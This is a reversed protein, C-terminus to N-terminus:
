PWVGMHPTLVAMIQDGIRDVGAKEQLEPNIEHAPRQAVVRQIASALALPDGPPVLQVRPPSPSLLERIAPSDRTILPCGLSLIQFVKNPIVSAAKDSEGFIGLAVTAQSIAQRLAPYDMWRLRTLRPLPSQQLVKDIRAAEQGDGVMIWDINEGSLLAAAAIITDVGHLPIFQGYFIVTPTSLAVPPSVTEVEGLDSGVFVHGVSERPLAFIGELRRAHERTDMFVGDVLRIALWEMAYVMRALLSGKRLLARDLVITDYASIFWDMVIPARFAAFPRLVFADILGPYCLLVADHPPLRLYRYVLRPYALFARTMIGAWRRWGKVQSKDEIGEWLPAHCEIVEVGKKRLAERLIRVRPKGTDYTGWLVVKAIPSPNLNFCPLSPDHISPPPGRPTM